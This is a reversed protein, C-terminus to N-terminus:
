SPQQPPQPSQKAKTRKEQLKIVVVLVAFLILIAALGYVVFRVSNVFWGGYLFTAWFPESHELALIKSENEQIGAMKGIRYLIPPIDKDHLVLLEVTFSGGKDFIIKNFRVVSSDQIQPSLNSSIYESNSEILRTEIINGREIRIGWSDNQDFDNQTINTGGNNDIKVRYIRLNLNKERINNGKFLIQLDRLPRNIDLVNIESVIQSFISPRKLYQDYASWIALFVVFVGIIKWAWSGLKKAIEWPKKM